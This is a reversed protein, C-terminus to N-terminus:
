FIVEQYPKNVKHLKGTCTDCDQWGHSNTDTQIEVIPGKIDTIIGNFICDDTQCSMYFKVKDGIRARKFISFEKNHKSMLFIGYLLSSTAIFTAIVHIVILYHPIHEYILM